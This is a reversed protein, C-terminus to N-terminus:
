QMPQFFPKLFTGLASPARYRTFGEALAAVEKRLSWSAAAKKETFVNIEQKGETELTTSPPHPHSSDKRKELTAV